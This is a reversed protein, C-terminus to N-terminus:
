AICLIHGTRVVREIITALIYNLYCTHGLVLIRKGFDWSFGDFYTYITVLQAYRSRQTLLESLEQIVKSNPDCTYGYRKQQQQQQQQKTQKHTQNNQKTKNQKTRNQETRNQKKITKKKTKQKKNQKTKQELEHFDMKTHPYRSWNHMDECKPDFFSMLHGKCWRQVWKQQTLMDAGVVINNQVLSIDM